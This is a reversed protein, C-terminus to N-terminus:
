VATQEQSERGEHGWASGTAECQGAGSTQPGLPRDPHTPRSPGWGQHGEGSRLGHRGSPKSDGAALDCLAGVSPLAVPGYPGLIRQSRPLSPPGVM